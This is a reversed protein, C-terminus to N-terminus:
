RGSGILRANIGFALPLSLGSPMELTRSRTQMVCRQQHQLRDEFGVKWRFLIGVPRPPVGLLRRNLHLLPPETTM